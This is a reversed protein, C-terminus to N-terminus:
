IIIVSFMNDEKRSEYWYIKKANKWWKAREWGMDFWLFRRSKATSLIGIDSM